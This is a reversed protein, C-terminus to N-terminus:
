QLVEGKLTGFLVASATMYAIDHNLSRLAAYALAAREQDTLRATFVFAAGHWADATGLTLAYEVM